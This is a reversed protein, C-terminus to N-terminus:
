RNTVICYMVTLTGCSVNGPIYVLHPCLPGLSSLVRTFDKEFKEVEEQPLSHDMPMETVDGSLLVLDIRFPYSLM